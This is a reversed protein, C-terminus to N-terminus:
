GISRLRDTLDDVDALTLAVARRTGPDLDPDVRAALATLESRLDDLAGGYALSRRGPDGSDPVPHRHRATLMELEVGPIAPAREAWLEAHWAHRHCATAFLRQLAAEGTTAVWGGLREFLDLSRARIRACAEGLEVIGIADTGPPGSM